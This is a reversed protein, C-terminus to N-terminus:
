GTGMMAGILARANRSLMERSLADAEAVSEVSLLIEAREDRRRATDEVSLHQSVHKAIITLSLGVPLGRNHLAPNDIAEQLLAERRGQRCAFPGALSISTATVGSPAKARSRLALCFYPTTLM